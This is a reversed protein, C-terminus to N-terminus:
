SSCPLSLCRRNEEHRTLTCEPEALGAAAFAAERKRCQSCRGCPRSYGLLCSYTRSFDVGLAAGLHIIDAKSKGILPAEVRIRSLGAAMRRFGELFGPTAAPSETGDERNLGLLLRDAERKDALSLGLSLAVLNRHPLPVHFLRSQGAHFVAATGSIDLAELTLGLTRCQSSAAKRELAAGRQGYDLFLPLLIKGPAKAEQHLLTTSEVGGSVLVATKPMAKVTRGNPVM